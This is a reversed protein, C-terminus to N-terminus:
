RPWLTSEITLIWQRSRVPHSYIENDKSFKVALTLLEISYPISSTWTSFKVVLIYSFLHWGCQLSAWKHLTYITMLSRKFEHFSLVRRIDILLVTKRATPISYLRQIWFCIRRMPVELYQLYSQKEKKM